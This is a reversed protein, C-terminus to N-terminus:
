ALYEIPLAERERGRERERERERKEILKQHNLMDMM